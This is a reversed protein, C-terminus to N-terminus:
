GVEPWVAREGDNSIFRCRWRYREARGAALVDRLDDIDYVAVRDWQPDFSGQSQVLFLGEDHLKQHAEVEEETPLRERWDSAALFAAAESDPWPPSYDHDQDVWGERYAEEIPHM